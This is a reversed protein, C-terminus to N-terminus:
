KVYVYAFSTIQVDGNDCSFHECFNGTLTLFTAYTERGGVGIFSYSDEDFSDKTALVGIRVKTNSYIDVSNIGEKYLYDQISSTTSILNRWASMGLSSSTYGASMLEKLNNASLPIILSRDETSSPPTNMVLKIESFPVYVFGLNKHENKALSVDAENYVDTNTWYGAAYKFTDNSGHIKLVLTWGGNTMDCYADFTGSTSYSLRYTGDALNSDYTKLTLCSTNIGDNFAQECAYANGNNCDQVASTIVACNDIEVQCALMDSTGGICTESTQDIINKIGMDCYNEIKKLIYDYTPDTTTLELYYNLDYDSSPIDCQDLGSTQDDVCRKIILDCAKMGAQDCANKLIILSADVESQTSSELYSNLTNLTNDNEFKAGNISSICEAESTNGNHNEICIKTNNDLGSSSKTSTFSPITAVIIVGSLLM